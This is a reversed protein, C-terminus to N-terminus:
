VNAEMTSQCFNMWDDRSVHGDESGPIKEFLKFDGERVAVLHAKEFTDECGDVACLRAFVSSCAHKRQLWEHSMGSAAHAQM